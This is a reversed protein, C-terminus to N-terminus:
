KTTEEQKSNIAWRRHAALAKIHEAALKDGAKRSNSLAVVARAHKVAIEDVQGTATAARLEDKIAEIAARDPRHDTTADQAM